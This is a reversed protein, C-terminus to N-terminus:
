YVLGSALQTAWCTGLMGGEMFSFVISYGLGSPKYTQNVPCYSPRNM